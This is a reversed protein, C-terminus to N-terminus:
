GCVAIIAQFGFQAALPWRNIEPRGGYIFFINFALFTCLSFIRHLGQDVPLQTSNGVRRQLYGRYIRELRTCLWCSAAAFAALTLPTAVLKPIGIAHQAMYFGPDLMAIATRSEHSWVGSFYYNFNGAYLGYYAFYGMVLGLYGYQVLRRGPNHLQEWYAQESDIDMCFSKCSVCASQEQAQGDKDKDKDSVTRCMSQTISHPAAQHATSDLLGRPGTFVAQVMGFPCVYHCWSRGGYLTVVVAASLLTLIFFVGAAPRVSNILVIRATIGLFFLVFQLYLHNTQLWANQKISM